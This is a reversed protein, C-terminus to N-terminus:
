LSMQSHAMRPVYAIICTLLCCCLLLLLLLLLTTAGVEAAEDPLAVDNMAGRWAWYEESGSLYDGNGVLLCRLDDSEGSAM